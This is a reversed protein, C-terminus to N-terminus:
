AEGEAQADLTHRHHLVPDVVDTEEVPAVKTEQLLEPSSFAAASGVEGGRPPTIPLHSHPRQAGRGGVHPLSLRKTM